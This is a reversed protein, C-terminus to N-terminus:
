RRTEEEDIMCLTERLFGRLCKAVEELNSSSFKWFTQDEPNLLDPNGVIAEIKDRQIDQFICVSYVAFTSM